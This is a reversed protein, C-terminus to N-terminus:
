GRAQRAILRYGAAEAEGALAAAEGPPAAGVEVAALRAGLALGVLRAESARRRLEELRERAAASGAPDVAAAEIGAAIVVAPNESWEALGVAEGSSERAAVVRGARRQARALLTLATIRDDREGLEELARVTQRALELAAPPPGSDVALRTLALRARVRGDARDLSRYLEEARGLRERATQLEGQQRAAEGLGELAAAEVDRLGRARAVVLAERFGEGAAEPRGADLLAWGWNKVALAEERPHGLQRAIALAERHLEEAAVPEGALRTAVGLLDLTAGEGPRDGLDRRLALAEDLLERGRGLEGQQVLLAALNTSGAAVGRTNGVERSSVIVGEYLERARGLEGQSRLVVALNNSVAAVAGQNGIRRYIELARGLLDRATGLDGRDRAVSALSGLASAEGTPDDREAALERSARCAQQAREFDSLSRHAECELLRAQALLLVTGRAEAEEAAQGAARLQRGTAGIAGAVRAEALDIRPDDGTPSGLSQLFAVAALAVESDGARLSAAVLRLGAEVDDPSQAWLGQWTEAAKDWEGRSEYFRADIRLKEDPALGPDLEEALRRARRAAERSRTEDGLSSWASSLASQILPNSPELEGARELRDVAARPDYAEIAALGEGYLRSAEPTVPLGTATGAAALGLAEGFVEAAAAAMASLATEPGDDGFSAVAEGSVTDVLSLDLRLTSDDASGLRATSGTIVYDAGSARRLRELQSADLRGEGPDRGGATGLEREIRRVTDGELVRVGGGAKLESTLAKDVVTSIWADEGTLDALDLVAITERFEVEGAPLGLVQRVTDDPEQIRQVRIVGVAVSAAIVALLAAITLKERPSRRPPEAARAAPAEPGGTLVALADGATAFRDAPDRELCGLILREWEAPLDPELERPPTPAEQLRKVAVTLPSDGEFPLRGTLMEYVTLGFAYVDTAGTIETGQVQEPSMYAPTGLATGPLTLSQTPGPELAPRALGFDTVVARPPVPEAGPLMAGEDGGTPGREVLMVNAAKFDRHVVGARHAADLADALQRVIPLAERPTFAGDRALRRDLTEGSLLEMTLFVLEDGGPSGPRARRHRFVDFIRCVNPHTVRRALQIERKFRELSATEAAVGLRITKVAVPGGLERDEAEYVEGMGGRSIWRVIEYRGALVEGPALLGGGASGAGRDDPGAVSRARPMPSDDPTGVAGASRASRAAEPSVSRHDGAARSRGSPTGGRVDDRVERRPKLRVAFVTECSTCRVRSREADPDSPRYRLRTECSPCRVVVTRTEGSM